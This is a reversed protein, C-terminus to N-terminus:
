FLLVILIVRLLGNSTSQIPGLLPEHKLPDMWQLKKERAREEEPGNDDHDMWSKVLSEPYELFQRKAGTAQM